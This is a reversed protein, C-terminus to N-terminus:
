HEHPRVYGGEVLGARMEFPNRLAFDGSHWWSWLSCAFYAPLFGIPGIWCAYQMSHRAEHDLLHPYRAVTEETARLLVVDGVTVAMARPALFRLPRGHAVIVGHPGKRFTARSALGLLLGLPTSLNVWNVTRRVPVLRPHPRYGQPRRGQSPYGRPRIAGPDHDTTVTSVGRTTGSRARRRSSAGSRGDSVKRAGDGSRDARRDDVPSDAAEDGSTM